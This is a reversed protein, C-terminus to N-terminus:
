TSVTDYPWGMIGGFNSVNTYGMDALLKAARASRGGSQCYVLIVASKDPLKSEARFEIEDVPILVAGKIHKDRFEGSTRVDLLTYSGGEDMIAKAQKASINRPAARAAKGGESSSDKTKGSGFLGFPLLFITALLDKM